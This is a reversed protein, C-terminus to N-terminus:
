FDDDVDMSRPRVRRPILGVTEEGRRRLRALEDGEADFLRVGAMAAAEFVTGIAVTAKGAEIASITKQQSGIREALQKQTWGKHTRAARIQLGLASVADMAVSM